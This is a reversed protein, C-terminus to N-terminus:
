TLLAIVFVTVYYLIDEVDDNVGNTVDDPAYDTVDDHIDDYRTVQYVICLCVYKTAKICPCITASSPDCAIVIKDM